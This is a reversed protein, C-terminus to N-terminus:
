CGEVGERPAVGLPLAFQFVSGKGPQSEVWIRGGHAEVLHKAIALGLGTGKARTARASASRYFKEFVHPLDDPEIGMGTDEVSATVETMTSKVALRVSGGRPTFQIANNLLNTLVQAIRDRDMRLVIREGPVDAELSVGAKGASIKASEFMARAVAAFDDLAFNMSLKGAELRSYDFLDSILRNLRETEEHMVELYHRSHEEGEVVGDLLAELFGQISTVPTRLEHSISSVLDRRMRELERQESVDRFLILAGKQDPSVEFQTAGTEYVKGGATVEAPVPQSGGPHSDAPQPRPSLAVRIVDRVQPDPVAEDFPGGIGEGPKLGLIPAAAPNFLILRGSSDVAAIGDRMSSLVAQMKSKELSIGTVLSDIKAAMDNFASGLSSVEDSGGIHVRQRLNGQAMERAARSLRNIPRCITGSVVFSLLLAVLAAAGGAWLFLGLLRRGGYQVSGVPRALLVVGEVANGDRVPYAVIMSSEGFLPLIARRPKGDHVVSEVLLTVAKSEVIDGLGPEGQRSSAVVAGDNTLIVVAADALNATVKMFRERFNTERAVRAIEKGQAMLTEGAVRVLYRRTLQQLSVGLALLTVLVVLLYTALLRSRISRFLGNM